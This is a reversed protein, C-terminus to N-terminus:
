DPTRVGSSWSITQDFEFEPIPDPACAECVSQDLEAEEIPPARAPYAKAPTTSGGLQEL